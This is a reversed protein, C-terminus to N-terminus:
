SEGPVDVEDEHGNIERISLVLSVRIDVEHAGDSGGCKDVGEIAERAPPLRPACLRALNTPAAELLAEFLVYLAVAVTRHHMRGNWVTKPWGDEHVSHALAERGRRPLEPRGAPRLGM